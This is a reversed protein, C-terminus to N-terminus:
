IAKSAPRLWTDDQLTQGSPPRNYRQKAMFRDLIDDPDALSVEDANLQHLRRLRADNKRQIRDVDLSATSGFPNLPQSEPPNYGVSDVRPSLTVRERRRYRASENRKPLDEFDDPFHNLGDVDIFASNSNLMSRPSVTGQRTTLPPAGLGSFLDRDKAKKDIVAVGERGCKNCKDEVTITEKMSKLTDEQHRLLADQQAELTESSTPADPFMSRFAKRSETDNKYKLENFEQINRPNLNETRVPAPEGQRAREFVDIEKPAPRQVMRPDFVDPENRQTELANEVRKRESQLQKRMSALEKLVDSSNARSPPQPPPRSSEVLPSPERRLAPIPPSKRTDESTSIGYSKKLNLNDPSDIGLRVSNSRFHSPRALDISLSTGEAYDPKQETATRVAPVPPSSGRPEQREQREREQQDRKEQTRREDEEQRKRKAEKKKAEAQQQLEENRRRTEEEKERKKRQEEEYEKQIRLRQEELRRNEKEEEIREKEKEIQERRKKEEIQRRLEDKYRDSQTKEQETKPQGFIGHGGRAHTVDGSADIQDPPPAILDDRPSSPARFRPSEHTARATSRATEPDQHMARLDAVINGQNDRLPAGGGGKGFPNYNRIEDDLKKEYREQEEKERQKRYRKEQIQRDLEEQYSRKDNQSRSRLDDDSPFQYPSIREKSRDRARATTPPPPVTIEITQVTEDKQDFTQVIEDKKEYREDKLIGYKKSSDDFTVRPSGRYPRDYGGGGGGGLDLPPPAGNPNRKRNDPELPNKMGYYHYAEDISSYPQNLGGSGGGTVYTRTREINPDAFRDLSSFDLLSPQYQLGPPVQSAGGRRPQDLLGDFGIDLIGGSRERPRRERTRGRERPTYGGSSEPEIGQGRPSLDFRTHYPRVEPSKLNRRPSPNPEGLYTLRKPTKEPDLLGSANVRLEEVKERRRAAEAERMQLQLEERYRAKKRANASERDNGGSRVGVPLTAFYNARAMDEKDPPPSRNPPARGRQRPPNPEETDGRLRKILNQYEDEPERRASLWNDDDLIGKDRNRDSRYRGRRDDDDDDDYRRDNGARNIAGDSNYSKLRRDRDDQRYAPEERRRRDRGDDNGPSQWGRRPGPPPRNGGRRRSLNEQSNRLFENYEKNRVDIKRKEASGNYHLGPLTAYIGDTPQPESSPRDRIGRPNSEGYKQKDYKHKEKERNQKLFDNYEDNRTQKKRVEASDHQRLGHLSAEYIEPERPPTDEREQPPDRPRGRRPLEEALMHNYEKKREVNLKNREEDHKGFGSFFNDPSKSRTPEGRRGRNREQEKQQQLRYNEEILNKKQKIKKIYERLVNEPVENEEIEDLSKLLENVQERYVVLPHQRIKANNRLSPLKNKDKRKMSHYYVRKDMLERYERQREQQLRKKEDEYQGLSLTSGRQKGAPARNKDYKKKLFENYERNRQVEMKQKHNFDNGLPLGSETDEPENWSRNTAQANREEMHQQTELIRQTKLKNRHTEYGGLRHSFPPDSESQQVHNQYDQRREDEYIKHLRETFGEREEQRPSYDQRPPSRAGRRPPAYESQQRPADYQDGRRGPPPPESRAANRGQFGFDNRDQSYNQDLKREFELQKKELERERAENQKRREKEEIQRQFMALIDQERLPYDEIIRNREQEMYDTLREDHHSMHLMREFERIRKDEVMKDRLDRRQKEQAINNLEEQSINPKTGIRPIDGQARIMAQELTQKELESRYEEKRQQEVRKRFDEYEGFKMGSQPPTPAKKFKPRNVYENFERRKQEQFKREIENYDLDPKRPSQQQLGGTQHSLYQREQQLKAKQNRIFEEIDNEVAAAM